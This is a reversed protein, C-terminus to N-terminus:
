ALVGVQQIRPPGPHRHLDAAAPWNLHLHVAAARSDELHGAAGAPAQLGPLLPGKRQAREARVATSGAPQLGTRLLRRM